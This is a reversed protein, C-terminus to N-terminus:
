ILGVCEGNGVSQHAASPSAQGCLGVGEDHGTVCLFVSLTLGSRERSYASLCFVFGLAKM